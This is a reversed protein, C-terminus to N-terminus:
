DESETDRNAFRSERITGFTYDGDFSLYVPTSEDYGRLFSALEGATMTKGVQDLAYGERKTNLVLAMGM